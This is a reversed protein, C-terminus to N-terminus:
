RSSKRSIDSLRPIRVTNSRYAGDATSVYVHILKATRRQWTFAGAAVAPRSRALAFDGRKGVRVWVSLAEGEPVGSTRGEVVILRGDRTGTIIITPDPQRPIMVSNSQASYLGWGSGNLARVGFTYARGPELGTVECTLAPASVLCSGGTPQSMVQYTSM